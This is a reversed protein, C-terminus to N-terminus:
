VLALERAVAAHYKDINAPNVVRFLADPLPSEKYAEITMTRSIPAPGPAFVSADVDLKWTGVFPDTKGQARVLTPISLAGALISVACTLTLRTFKM